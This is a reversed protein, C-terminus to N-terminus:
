NEWNSKTMVFWGSYNTCHWQVEKLLEERGVLGGQPRAARAAWAIAEHQPIRATRMQLISIVLAMMGWWAEIDRREWGPPEPVLFIDREVVQIHSQDLPIHVLLVVTAFQPVYFQLLIHRIELIQAKDLSQLWSDFAQVGQESLDVLYNTRKDYYFMSRTEQRVQGNVHLLSLHRMCALQQYALQQLPGQWLLMDDAFPSGRCQELMDIIFEFFSEECVPLTPMRDKMTTVIWNGWFLVPGLFGNHEPLPGLFRTLPVDLSRLSYYLANINAMPNSTRGIAITRNREDPHSIVIKWIINRLEGPLLLLPSPRLQIANQTSSATPLSAM